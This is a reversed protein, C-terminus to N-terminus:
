GSGAPGSEVGRDSRAGKLLLLSFVVVGLLLLYSAASAYGLRGRVMGVDHAFLTVTETSWGPGGGTAVKVIDMTKFLEM